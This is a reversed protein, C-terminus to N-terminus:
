ALYATARAVDPHVFGVDEVVQSEKVQADQAHRFRKFASTNCSM